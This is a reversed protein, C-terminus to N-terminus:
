PWQRREMFAVLIEGHCAKPKCVCGITKDTLVERAREVIEPHDRLHQAYLMLCKDRGYVEVRFPNSFISPRLISVDYREGSRINIVRTM